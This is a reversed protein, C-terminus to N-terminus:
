VARVAAEQILKTTSRGDLYPLLVIRGNWSEVADAEPLDELAYDGGKVWIDPRVRELAAIPTDDEFVVVADVCRLARLVAARDQEGVVPRSPGKLRKISADSNLLVVLCDGLERAAELTRVHGTHLLDFCGGTAVVTGGAARTRAVADDGRGAREAVGTQAGGARYPAPTVSAAGGAAVFTTAAAVAGAVAGLADAGDALLEAARSAFRDGAGCPDGGAIPEAPFARITGDAAGVLAGLGGRTVCVHQARWRRALESACAAVVASGRGDHEGAFHAAEDANPTVLAAGPVPGPGSRHPDWVVPVHDAIAALAERVSQEAAVGRGYDSVLVAGAWELAARAAATLAGVAAARGGRDLRLLSRGAARVRVKEPTAGRLGLDVVDVGCLELAARLEAGAADDGLATVLTVHRGGRAALAAALGAGGPRVCVEREEVVPVPADPALREVSGEVDRDLLADGVVVLPPPHATM